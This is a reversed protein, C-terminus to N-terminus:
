NEPFERLYNEVDDALIRGRLDILKNELGNLEESLEKSEHEIRDLRGELQLFQILQDIDEKWNDQNNDTM